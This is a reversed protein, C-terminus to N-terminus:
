DALSLLPDKRRMRTASTKSRNQFSIKKEISFAKWDGIRKREDDTHDREREESGGGKWGM